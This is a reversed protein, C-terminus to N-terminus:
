STWNQWQELCPKVGEHRLDAVDAALEHRLRKRQLARDVPRHRSVRARVVFRLVEKASRRLKTLWPPICFIHLQVEVVPLAMFLTLTLIPILLSMGLFDVEM